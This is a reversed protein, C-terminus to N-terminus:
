TTPLTLHTYSVPKLSRCYKFAEEDIVQLGDPLNMSSLAYCRGFAFGGITQLGFPLDISSLSRCDSFTDDEISIVGEPLKLSEINRKIEIPIMEETVETIDPSLRFFAASMETPIDEM